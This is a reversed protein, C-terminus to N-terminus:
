NKRRAALGLLGMSLLLATTPEPIPTDLATISLGGADKKTIRAYDAGVVWVSLTNDLVINVQKTKAGPEEGAALLIQNLDYSASLSWTGAPNIDVPVEFQISTQNNASQIFVAGGQNLEVIELTVTMTANAWTGLDSGLLTYDGFENLLITDVYSGNDAVVSFNLQGDISDYGPSALAEFGTPNFNLVNGACYPANFLPADASSESINTYTVTGGAGDCDDYGITLSQASGAVILAATILGFFMLRTYVIIGGWLAAFRADM